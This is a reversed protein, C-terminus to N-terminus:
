PQRVQKEIEAAKDSVGKRTLDNVPYFFVPDSDVDVTEGPQLAREVRQSMDSHFGGGPDKWYYCHFAAKEPYRCAIGLGADPDVWAAVPRYYNPIEGPLPGDSAEDLGLSPKVYYYLADLLWPTDDTNQVRLCQAAFWAGDNRPVRFRWDSRFRKPSAPSAGGQDVQTRALEMDVIFLDATERVAVIRATDSPVWLSEPSRQHMLAYFSGLLAEGHYLQWALGDKPGRMVLAGTRLEMATKPPPSAADPLESFWAAYQFPAPPDPLRGRAHLDYVMGNVQRATDTLEPYPDDHVNVLGYNSDEPFTSSIGLAPEDAWMFFNTGVMFPLSFMLKQFHAFCQARQAQTDVRMGAGHASPLGADLAPFSWETVMMPRNAKRQWGSIADVVHAPVGGDIDIRPYINFSVIDCYKGAVAWVDPADGAFRCGLILHNPDYRRIAEVCTKFYGDALTQVWEEAIAEAEANRPAAPETHDLLADFSDISIGWLREFEAPGTLQAKLFGIWARKASHAAPKKWAEDFLGWQKYNKGFWELENDLFYGILWPNDREPGCVRRAIKDCHRPWKPSFVNPFGTWTTKPCIDDIDSFSAGMSLFEIHPFRTYRLLPSHNAPLTNFGWEFLRAGASEAWAQESGYRAEVNRAYPAYGLKECYHVQYSAHDTGIMYFGHGNPDILWWRGEKEVPHFFGTTDGTVGVYGAPEYAPFSRPPSIPPAAERDIVVAVNDFRAEAHGAALAPRGTTVAMNDFAFGLHSREDGAPDLVFGDIGQETLVLRLRYPTGYEWDFDAGKTATPTLRSEPLNQSLWRGERMESLEVFHRKGESEPAEVLALHWYNRHDQRVALGAVVWEGGARGGMVVTGEFSLAAAHPAHELDCVDLAGGSVTMAGDDVEWAVSGAYWRPGGETGSPYNFVEEFQFASVAACIAIALMTM